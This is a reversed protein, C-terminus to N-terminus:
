RHKLGEAEDDHGRGKADRVECLVDAEKRAWRRYESDSRTLVGDCDVKAPARRAVINTLSHALHHLDVNPERGAANKNEECPLILNM